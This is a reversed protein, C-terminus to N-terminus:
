KLWQFGALDLLRSIHRLRPRPSCKKLAVRHLDRIEIAPKLSNFLFNVYFGYIGM